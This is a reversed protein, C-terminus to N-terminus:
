TQPPAPIMSSFRVATALTGDEDVVLYVTEAGHQRKVLYTDQGFKSVGKFTYSEVPGIEALYKERSAKQQNRVWALDNSMGAGGDPDSLFLQLAKESGPFPKQAKIRTALAANIRDATAKDTRPRDLFERGDKNQTAVLRSAYGHADTVFHMTADMGKIAFRTKSLPVLHYPKPAAMQGSVSVTLGNDARTVTIASIPSVLYYGTYRDLTASSLVVAAHAGQHSTDPPIVQTAFVAMGLSICILAVASAKAWKNPKRLMHRIRLELFSASDSMAPVVGIRSSQRQGVQILTECYTGLDHGGRLVRADCDVEIARRLRCFQWWLLPNWPMLMLLVLALAVLQPDRTAIHAREHAITCQKQEDSVQLLWAPVVIRSHMLGVVAPGADPAILVREGCLSGESWGRKRRDLLVSGLALILAMLVSAAVWIGRMLTDIRDSTAYSQTGEFDLLVPPMPISTTERLVISTSATSSKLADPLQISASAIVTPLMLSGALSLVWVWRTAALRVKAAREAVLAAVSLTLTVLVVYMMWAIM